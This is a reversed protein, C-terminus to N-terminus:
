GCPSARALFMIRDYIYEAEIRVEGTRPLPLPEALLQVNQVWHGGASVLGPGTSLWGGEGLDAEFWSVICDAVPAGAVFRGDGDTICEAAAACLGTGDLGSTASSPGSGALCSVAAAAAPRCRQKKAFESVPTPTCLLVAASGSGSLTLPLPAHLDFLVVPVPESILELGPVALVDM